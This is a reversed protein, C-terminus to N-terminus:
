PFQGQSRSSEQKRNESERKGKRRKSEPAGRRGERGRVSPLKNNNNTAQRRSREEGRHLTTPPRGPPITTKTRTGLDTSEVHCNEAERCPPFDISESKHRQGRHLLLEPWHTLTAGAGSVDGAAGGPGRCLAGEVRMRVGEQKM